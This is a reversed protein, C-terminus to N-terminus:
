GFYQLLGHWLDEDVPDLFMCGVKYKGDYKSIGRVEMELEMLVMKSNAPDIIGSSISKGVTFSKTALFCLGGQSYDFLQCTFRDNGDIVTIDGKSSVRRYERLPEYVGGAETEPSETPRIEQRSPEEAIQDCGIQDVGSDTFTIIVESSEPLSGSIPRKITIKGNKYTGHVTLM